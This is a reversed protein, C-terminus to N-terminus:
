NLKAKLEKLIFLILVLIFTQIVHCSLSSSNIEMKLFVTKKFNLIIYKKEYTDVHIGVVDTGNSGIQMFTTKM